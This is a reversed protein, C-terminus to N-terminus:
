LPCISSNRRSREVEWGARRMRRDRLQDKDRQTPLLHHPGDIEFDLCIQLIAIDAEGITRGQVTVAFPRPHSQLGYRAAVRAITGRGKKETASHSLEGKLDDIARRLAPAGVFRSVAAVRGELAELTVKRQGDATAIFKTLQHHLAMASMEGDGAAADMFAQAVDVVPLGGIWVVDGTWQGIRINSTSRAASGVPRALRISHTSTKPGIGHLWLASLGTVAQGANLAEDVLVDVLNEGMETRATVREGARTPRSHSLVEAALKRYPMDVTPLAIIGRGMRKWGHESIRKRVAHESIAIARLQWMTIMMHQRQAVAAVIAWFDM